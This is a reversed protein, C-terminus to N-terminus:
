TLWHGNRSANFNWIMSSMLFMICTLMPLRDLDGDVNRDKRM